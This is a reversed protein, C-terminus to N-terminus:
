ASEYSGTQILDIIKRRRSELRYLEGSTDDEDSLRAKLNNIQRTLEAEVLRLYLEPLAGPASSDIEARIILEPLISQVGDDKPVAIRSSLSGAQVGNLREKVLNFVSQTLETTFHAETMKQLYRGAEGPRALCLSLFSKEITEERSLVRRQMGDGNEGSGSSLASKVLYAMDKDSLGFRDAIIRLQENREEPNAAYALVQEVAASEAKFRNEANNLDFGSLTTQVQYELLSLAKDAFESFSGAAEPSMALDAPDHGSPMQVVRLTISLEKASKLARLMAKQGAADADFALYVNKTFRSIERLQFGTLATGMSAVVNKIGAQHLAMVDTYGEVVYVRDEKTIYRRANGLGFVINGKHYIGSEPSNVYKPMGNDLVRAGFGLVRGRHDSIPFMLRGCFRDKVSSGRRTVLGATALEEATYGKKGAANLLATESVPSFGLRFESTVEENFGRDLLYKRGASGLPSERLCRTYYSAAQDLLSYIRERGRRRKEQEPDTNEYQLNVGYKDALLKVAETFGLGEKKEIFTFVNGGEGCGFCHYVKQVPDVSFSATKEFHFPCKGMYNGGSKKLTTYPAVIELMDCNDLVAEISAQVILAM